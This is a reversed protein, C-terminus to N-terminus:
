GFAALFADCAASQFGRRRIFATEMRALAQCAVGPVATYLDLVSRPVVGFCSGAAICALIAHYSRLDL